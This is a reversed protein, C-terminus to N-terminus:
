VLHCFQAKTLFFITLFGDIECKLAKSNSGLNKATDIAKQKDLNVLNAFPDEKLGEGKDEEAAKVEETPKESTSAAEIKVLSVEQKVETENPSATATESTELKKEDESENQKNSLLNPLQVPMKSSVWNSLSGFM